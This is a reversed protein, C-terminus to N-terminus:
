KGAAEAERREADRKKQEVKAAHAAQKRRLREEDAARRRAGEEAKTAKDARIKVQRQAAQNREESIKAARESLEEPRQKEEEAIQRDREAIKERKVEREIALGENELKQAARTDTLHQLDADRRCSNVLFKKACAALREAHQADASAKREKAESKLAAAKELRADESASAANEGDAAMGLMPWCAALLVAFNRFTKIM